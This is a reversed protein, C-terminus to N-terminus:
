NKGKAQSSVFSAFRDFFSPKKTPESHEGPEYIDPEFSPDRRIQLFLKPQLLVFRIFLLTYEYLILSGM